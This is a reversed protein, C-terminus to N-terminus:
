GERSLEEAIIRALRERGAENPHIGDTMYLDKDEWKEHPSFDHFVDIVEIDLEEAARLEAEVYEKLVGGGQDAEECTLGTTYWTYLPTVLVIRLEPNARRLAEVSSRLAGLFTYEDYPDEPNEIPVGAHYDNVGQQLLVIEVRSFDIVELGNVVEAFYETNNERTRMTVTQQVGFDEAGVSKTLGALSLSNKPYDKRRGSELRAMCTGGLAANYVPTGLLEALQEPVGTEDRVAGFVSDGFAVVEPHWIHEAKRERFTLFFLVAFIEAAAIGYIIIRKKHLRDM